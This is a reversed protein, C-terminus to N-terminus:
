LSTSGQDHALRQKVKAGKADKRYITRTRSTTHGTGM